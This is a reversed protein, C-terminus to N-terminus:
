TGSIRVVFGIPGKCKPQAARYVAVMFDVWDQGDLIQCTDGYRRGQARSCKAGRLHSRCWGRLLQGGLTADIQRGDLPGPPAAHDALRVHDLM